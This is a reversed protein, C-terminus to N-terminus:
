TGDPNKVWAEQDPSIRVDDDPDARIGKKIATHDGSWPTESIPKSGPPPKDRTDGDQGAVGAPGPSQVRVRPPRRRGNEDEDEEEDHRRNEFPGSIVEGLKRFVKITADTLSRNEPSGPIAQPPLPLPLPGAPVAFQAKQVKAEGNAVVTPPAPAFQAVATGLLRTWGDPGYARITAALERGSRVIGAHTDAAAIDRMILQITWADVPDFSARFFRLRFDNPALGSESAMM